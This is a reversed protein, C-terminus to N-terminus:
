GALDSLIREIDQRLNADLSNGNKSKTGKFKGPPASARAGNEDISFFYNLGNITLHASSFNFSGELHSISIHGSYWKGGNQYEAGELYEQNHNTIVTKAVALLRVRPVGVFVYPIWADAADSTTNNSPM